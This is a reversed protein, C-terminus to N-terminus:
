TESSVEREPLLVAREDVAESLERLREDQRVLALLQSAAAQYGGLTLEGRLLQVRLFVGATQAVDVLCYNMVRDIEGAAVAAGVGAGDLTGIKGPWGCLRAIVDLKACKSAGFDALFDMLDFHGEASYRYRVDREGYYHSFTIGYRLCRLAILPLDAGRGNWTVLCPRRKRLLDVLARLSEEENAGRGM